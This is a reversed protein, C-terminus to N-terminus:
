SPRSPKAKPETDSREQEARNIKAGKGCMSETAIATQNM